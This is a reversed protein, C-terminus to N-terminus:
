ADVRATQLKEIWRVAVTFWPGLSPRRRQLRVRARYAARAVVSMRAARPLSNSAVSEYRVDTLVVHTGDPTRPDQAGERPSKDTSHM